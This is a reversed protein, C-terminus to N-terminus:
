RDGNCPCRRISAFPVNIVNTYMAIARIPLTLRLRVPTQLSRMVVDKLTALLLSLRFVRGHQVLRGFQHADIGVDEDVDEHLGLQLYLEM